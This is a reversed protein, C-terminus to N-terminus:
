LGNVSYVANSTTRVLKPARRCSSTVGQLIVMSELIMYPRFLTTIVRRMAVKPLSTLELSMKLERIVATRM